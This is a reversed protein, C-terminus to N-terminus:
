EKLCANQLLKIILAFLPSPAIIKYIKDHVQGKKYILTIISMKMSEPLCGTEFSYNSVEEFDNRLEHWFRKFFETSLGDIGPAKQSPLKRLANDLEDVNVPADCYEKQAVSIKKNVNKM